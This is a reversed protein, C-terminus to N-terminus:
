FAFATSLFIDMRNQSESVLGDIVDAFSVSDASAAVSGMAELSDALHLQADGVIALYTSLVDEIVMGAARQEAVFAAMAEALAEMQARLSRAGELGDATSTLPTELELREGTDVLVLQDCAPQSLPPPVFFLRVGAASQLIPVAAGAAGGGSAFAVQSVEPFVLGDTREVFCM